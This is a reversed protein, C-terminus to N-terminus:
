QGWKSNKCRWPTLTIRARWVAAAEFTIHDTHLLSPSTSTDSIIHFSWGWDARNFSKIKGRETQDPRLPLGCSWMAMDPPLKGGQSHTHTHTKKRESRGKHCSFELHSENVHRSALLGALSRPEDDGTLMENARARAVGGGRGWQCSVISLTCTGVPDM